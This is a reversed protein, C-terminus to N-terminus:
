GFVAVHQTASALPVGDATWLRATFTHYGDEAVDTVAKFQCWDSARGPVAADFHLTWAVTSAPRPTRLQQLVPAPWADLLAVIVAADRPGDDDPFRIWGAISSGEGGTFPLQGEVMRVDIFRTFEPTVGPIYPFAVLDDPAPLASGPAAISIASARSKGFVATLTVRREDGVRVSGEVLTSSGGVRLLSADLTATGAPVPGAFVTQLFRIPREEPVDAQMRRLAAGAVLGGFTARGQGWSAPFEATDGKPDLLTSLM